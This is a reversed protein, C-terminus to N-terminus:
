ASKGIINWFDWRIPPCNDRTWHGSEYWLLWYYDKNAYTIVILITNIIIVIFLLILNTKIWYNKRYKKFFVPIILVALPLLIGLIEINSYRSGSNYFPFTGFKELFTSFLVLLLSIACIQVPLYKSNKM